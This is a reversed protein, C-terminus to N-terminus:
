QSGNSREERPRNLLIRVSGLIRRAMEAETRINEGIDVEEDINGFESVVILRFRSRQGPYILLRVTKPISHNFYRVMIASVVAESVQAVNKQDLM